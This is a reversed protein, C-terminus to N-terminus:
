CSLKKKPACKECEGYLNFDHDHITFSTSSTLQTLNINHTDIHCADLCHISECTNCFFHHHHIPTTVEYYTIGNRLNIALIDQSVLLKELIRYVTTKNISIAQDSVKKIIQGASLPHNSSQIIEFVLSSKKTNRKFAM